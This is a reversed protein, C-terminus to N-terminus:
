CQSGIPIELAAKLLSQLFLTAHYTEASNLGACVTGCIIQNVLIDLFVKILSLHVAVPIVQIYAFM